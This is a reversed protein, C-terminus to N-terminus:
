VTALRATLFNLKQQDIQQLRYNIYYGAAQAAVKQVSNQTIATTIFWEYTQSLCIILVRKQQDGLLAFIRSVFQM